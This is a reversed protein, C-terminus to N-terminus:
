KTSYRSTYRLGHCISTVGSGNYIMHFIALQHEGYRYGTTGPPGSGWAAPRIPTVAADNPMVTTDKPEGSYIIYAKKTGTLWDPHFQLALM